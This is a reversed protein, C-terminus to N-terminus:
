WRQGTDARVPSLRYQVASFLPFRDTATSRRLGDPRSSAIASAVASPGPRPMTTSLLTPRVQSPYSASVARRASTM